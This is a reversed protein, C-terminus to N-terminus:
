VESCRQLHTAKRMGRLTRNPISQTCPTRMSIGQRAAQFAIAIKGSVNVNTALFSSNPLQGAFEYHRDELSLLCLSRGASVACSQVRM